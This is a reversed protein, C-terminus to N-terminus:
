AEALLRTPNQFGPGNFIPSSGSLTFSGNGQLTGGTVTLTASITSANALDLTGETIELNGDATLSNLNTAGSSTPYTVTNGSLDPIVADDGDVPAGLPARGDRKGAAM